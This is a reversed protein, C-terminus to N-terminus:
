DELACIQISKLDLKGTALVPIADVKKIRKPIWLNSLGAQTLRERVDSLDLDLVTLLVLAEGKAVDPRGAVALMPLDSDGLEFSAILVAEVTGHPVMEGGIKSFRSLRGEIYLFGDADFRGLDGTLFWDGQKVELSRPVDDLYGEFINPGKLAILGMCDLSQSELTDTNLIRACHGPLLRGVSGKRARAEASSKSQMDGRIKDPLNISVVPSTETLGYGELYQCAFREEWEQAFGDPTKEAGVIVYELSKLQESDVRKLYPKLFTPTGVLITAQELKIVEATRKVDLPSPVTVVPVGRLLPYWLTVTFGFSHFIPLNALLKHGSTLLGAADIQACNALINRHSLVVGKPEGSSGSTFLLGAEQTGGVRPVRLLRALLKSPLLYLAVLLAMFKMKPLAQLSEVLDVVKVESWPFNTVKAQVQRATLVCDVEAKRLCHASVSPGLTFNLNVPVKGALVVALNAFYGGLGPPFIIGVRKRETWQSVRRSLLWAVSLLFGQKASRRGRTCDVVLERWPRRGLAVFCAYALHRKLDPRGQFEGEGVDIVDSQWM